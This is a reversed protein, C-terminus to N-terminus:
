SCTSPARGENPIGSTPRRWPQPLSRGDDTIRPAAAKVSDRLGHVTTRRLRLHLVRAHGRSVSSGMPSWALHVRGLPKVPRRGPDHRPGAPSSSTRIALTRIAARAAESGRERQQIRRLSRHRSPRRSARPRTPVPLRKRPRLRRGSRPRRIPGRGIVLRGSIAPRRRTRHPHSRRFAGCSGGGASPFRRDRQARDVLRGHATAAAVGHWVM